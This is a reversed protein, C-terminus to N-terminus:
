IHKEFRKIVELKLMLDEKLTFRVDHFLEMFAEPFSHKVKQLDNLSLTILSCNDLAQATFRRIVSM